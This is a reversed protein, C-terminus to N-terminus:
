MVGVALLAETSSALGGRLTVGFDDGREGHEGRLQELDCIAGQM